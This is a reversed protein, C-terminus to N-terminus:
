PATFLDIVIPGENNTPSLEIIVDLALNRNVDTGLPWPHESHTRSHGIAHQDIRRMVSVERPGPFVHVSAPFIPRRRESRDVHGGICADTHRRVFPCSLFGTPGRDGEDDENLGILGKSDEICGEDRRRGMKKV